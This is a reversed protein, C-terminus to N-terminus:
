LTGVNIAPACLQGPVVGVVMSVVVSAAAWHVGPRAAVVAVVALALVLRVRGYSAAMTPTSQRLGCACCYRHCPTTIPPPSRRRLQLGHGCRVVIIAAAVSYRCCVGVLGAGLWIHAVIARIFVVVVVVAGPSGSQWWLLGLSGAGGVMVVITTATICAPSRYSGGKYLVQIRQLLSINQM